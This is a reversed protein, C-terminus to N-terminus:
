DVLEGEEAPPDAEPEARWASSWSAATPAQMPVAIVAARVNLDVTKQERYKEPAEARLRLEALRDSYVRRYYVEGDKGMIPEDVGEFARRDVMEEMRELRRARAAKVDLAFDADDELAHNVSRPSYGILEAAEYIRGTLSLAVILERKADRDLPEEWARLALRDTHKAEIEYSM